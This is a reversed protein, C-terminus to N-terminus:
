PRTYRCSTNNRYSFVDKDWEWRNLPAYQEKINVDITPASAMLTILFLALCVTLGDTASWKVLCYEIYKPTGQPSSNSYLSMAQTSSALSSSGYSYRATQIARRPRQNAIGAEMDEQRIRIVVLEDDTIIFGFRTDKTICYHVCQEIPADLANVPSDLTNQM